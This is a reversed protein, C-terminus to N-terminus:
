RHNTNTKWTHMIWSQSVLLRNRDPRVAAKVTVRPEEHAAEKKKPEAKVIKTERKAGHIKDIDADTLASMHSKVDIGLQHAKELLEKSNINMEKALEHVKKTM